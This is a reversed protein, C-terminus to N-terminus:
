FKGTEETSCKACLALASSPKVPNNMKSSPTFNVREFFEWNAHSALSHVASFKIPM